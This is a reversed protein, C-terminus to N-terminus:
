LGPPAQSSGGRTATHSMGWPNVLTPNSGLAKESCCVFSRASERGDTQQVSGSEVAGDRRTRGRARGDASRQRERGRWEEGPPVNMTRSVAPGSINPEGRVTLDKQSLGEIPEYVGRAQETARYAKELSRPRRAVHSVGSGGTDAAKRQAEELGSDGGGRGGPQGAAPGAAERRGVDPAVAPKPEAEGGPKGREGYKAGNTRSSM